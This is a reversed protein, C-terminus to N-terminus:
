SVPLCLCPTGCLMFLLIKLKGDGLQISLQARQSGEQCLLPGFSLAFVGRGHQFDDMKWQKLVAAERLKKDGRCHFNGFLRMDDLNCLFTGEFGPEERRKRSVVYGPEALVERFSKAGECIRIFFLSCYLHKCFHQLLLFSSLLSQHCLFVPSIGRGQLHKVCVFVTHHPPDAHQLTLHPTTKVSQM